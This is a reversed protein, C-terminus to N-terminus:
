GVPILTEVGDAREVVWGTLGTSLRVKWWIFGDAARPGDLLVVRTGNEVRAVVEGALGPRSRMNLRDGETTNIIAVGNVTLVGQRTVSPTAVDAPSLAENQPTTQPLVTQAAFIPPALQAWDDYIAQARFSESVWVPVPRLSAAANWVPRQQASGDATIVEILVPTPNDVVYLFGQPTGLVQSEMPAIAPVNSQTGDRAVIRWIFDGATSRLDDAQVLTRQGDEIFFARNISLSDDAFYPFRGGTDPAYVHLANNQTILGENQLPLREDTVPMIVEGTPPLRDNILTAYQETPRLRDTVIDWRYAPAPMFGGTQYPALVFDLAGGAYAQIVPVVEAPLNEPLQARVSEGALDFLVSGTEVDLSLVRWTTDDTAYGIAVAGGAQNFLHLALNLDLTDATLVADPTYDSLVDDATVDYIVFTDSLTGDVTGRVRYVFRTGDAAVSVGRSYLVDDGYAAPAPLAIDHLVQGSADVQIMRGAAQEYLWVSWAPPEQAGTISGSLLLSMLLVVLVILRILRM